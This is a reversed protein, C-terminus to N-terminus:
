ITVHPAIKALTAEGIGSVELLDDVARFRGNRERWRVIAQATVPGVGPLSDLVTTDATNLNVLAGGTGASAGGAAAAAVGAAPTVGVLIQEGDALVRALNVSSTDTGPVAGGAAAIADAVRAGAPLTRIGPEAVKGAVDVVVSGGPSDPSSPSSLGGSAPASTATGALPAAAPVLEGDDTRIM